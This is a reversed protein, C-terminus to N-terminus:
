GMLVKKIRSWLTLKKPKEPLIDQKKLKKIEQIFDEKQKNLEIQDKKVEDNFWKVIKSKKKTM